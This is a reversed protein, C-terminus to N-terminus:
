RGAAETGRRSAGSLFWIGAIVVVSLVGLGGSSWWGARAGMHETILGIFFSGVPTSGAFVLMYLSMVRGRLEDPTTTQLMTNAQASFLIQTFGVIALMAAGLTFSRVFATALTAVCLVAGPWVYSGISPQKRSTQALVLAGVLAGAGMASTLLGFGAAEQNLIQKALLPILVGFNIVFLSVTGTLTIVFATLPTRVVYRVGERIESLMSRGKGTKPLGEARIALLAAIVAIFSVGNLFFGLAIGYRAILFGAVAPGVIRAGNFVASNLAIANGIDAKGVMEVIYSQRAPMDLTNVIGLALALLAVHWYQVHGSWVLASLIFALLMLATQTGIILRRKPLRDTVAGAVLSFLLMPLFQLTSILGLKFPSNTIQLILWSQGVTQMWSGILSILQGSWFLRFDRHRLARFGAPLQQM